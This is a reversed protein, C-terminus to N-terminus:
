QDTVRRDTKRQKENTLWRYVEAMVMYLRVSVLISFVSRTTCLQLLQNRVILCQHCAYAGILSCKHATQDSGISTM